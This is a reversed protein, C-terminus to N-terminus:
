PQAGEVSASMLQVDVRRNRRKAERSTEPVLPRSEGYWSVTLRSRDIGSATLYDAVANARRRSLEDNHDIEGSIDTHGDVAAHLSPDAALKRAIDDLRSRAEPRLIDQDRAFLVHSVEVPADATTQMEVKGSAPLSPASDWRARVRAPIPTSAVVEM